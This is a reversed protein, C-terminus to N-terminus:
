PTALRAALSPSICIEQPQNPRIWTWIDNPLISKNYHEVGPWVRRLNTSQLILFFMNIKTVLTDVLCTAYFTLHDKFCAKKQKFTKWEQPHYNCNMDLQHIILVMLRQQIFSYNKSISFVLLWKILYPFFSELKTQTQSYNQPVHLLWDDREEDICNLRSFGRFYLQVCFVISLFLVLLRTWSMVTNFFSM